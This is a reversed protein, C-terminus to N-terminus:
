SFDWSDDIIEEGVLIGEQERSTLEIIAQHLLLGRRSSSKLVRARSDRELHETQFKNKADIFYEVPLSNTSGREM